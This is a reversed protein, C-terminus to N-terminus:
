PGRRRMLRGAGSGFAEEPPPLPPPPPPMLERLRAAGDGAPSTPSQFNVEESDQASSPSGDASTTPEVDVPDVLSAAGVPDLERLTLYARLAREVQADRQAVAIEADLDWKAEEEWREDWPGDVLTRLRGWLHGKSLDIVVGGEPSATVGEYVEDGQDPDNLAPDDEPFCIGEGDPMSEEDVLECEDSPPLADEEEAREVKGSDSAVIGIGQAIRHLESAIRKVLALDNDYKHIALLAHKQVNTMGGVPGGEGGGYGEPDPAPSAEERGSPAHAADAWRPDWFKERGSGPPVWKGRQPVLLPHGETTFVYEDLSIHSPPSFLLYYYKFTEAFVFSEMNDQKIVPWANVDRVQAFGVPTMSHRVWSAFMQWGREQWVYDGTLRYMYLVSEITEPRGKYEKGTRRVGIQPNGRPLSEGAGSRVTFRDRDTSRYFTVDEPGLGSITANYAWYCTETVRQAAVIDEGSREPLLKAGLGLMGGSFCALHELTLSLGGQPGHAQGVVLLPTGPVTKIEAFLAAHADRVAAAYTEGYLDVRGGLMQHTKVLYEYYSDAMGGFTYAGSSGSTEPRIYTPLLSGTKVRDGTMSQPLSVNHALWDTTRHVVSFYTLNGTVMWLRTFELVLSGAEALVVTGAPGPSVPQGLKLRGLPVGSFTNFAPLLLQALEEARHLMLKDGSLDYASLLGGLYRIATEFVPIRGDAQGYASRAGSVLTFDIDRVHQRAYAYERPLGMVLLTDLADVVSAGWGNFPDTSGNSLPRLEDHGWAHAKYGEWARIFANRVMRQRWRMENERATTTLGGGHRAPQPFAFQVPPLPPRPRELQELPPRWGGYASGQRFDHGVGQKSPRAADDFHTRSGNVQPDWHQPHWLTLPVPGASKPRPPPHPPPPHELMAVLAPPLQGAHPDEGAPYVQWLATPDVAPPFATAALPRVDQAQAALEPDVALPYSPRAAEPVPVPASADVDVDIATPSLHPALLALPVAVCAFISLATGWVGQTRTRTHREMDSVGAAMKRTDTTAM